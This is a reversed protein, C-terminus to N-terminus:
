NTSDDSIVEAVLGKLVYVEDFTGDQNDEHSLKTINGKVFLSVDQGLELPSEIPIKSMSIKVLHQDVRKAMDQTSKLM